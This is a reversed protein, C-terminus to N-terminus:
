SHSLVESGDKNHTVGRNTRTVVFLRNLSHVAAFLVVFAYADPDTCSWPSRSRPGKM